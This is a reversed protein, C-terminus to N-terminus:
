QIAAEGRKMVLAYWIDLSKLPISQFHHGMAQSVAQTYATPICAFPLGGIGKPEDSDDESFNVTIPPIEAPGPIDFNELQESPIIGNVYSIQERYAWGLAQVVSAKISTRADSESIIKGGNVNM